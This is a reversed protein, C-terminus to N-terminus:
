IVTANGKIPLPKETDDPTEEQRYCAIALPLLYSRGGRQLLIKMVRQSGGRVGRYISRPCARM